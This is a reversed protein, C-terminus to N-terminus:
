YLRLPFCCFLLLIIIVLLYVCLVIQRGHLSPITASETTPVTDTTSLAVVEDAKLAHNFSITQNLTHWGPGRCQGHVTVNLIELSMLEKAAEPPTIKENMIRFPRGNTVLPSTCTAPYSYMGANISVILMMFLTGRVINGPLKHSGRRVRPPTTETIDRLTTGHENHDLHHGGIIYVRNNNRNPEVPATMDHNIAEPRAGPFFATIANNRIAHCFWLVFITIVVGGITFLALEFM